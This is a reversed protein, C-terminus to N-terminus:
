AEAIILLVMFCMHKRVTLQNTSILSIESLTASEVMKGSKGWGLVGLCM